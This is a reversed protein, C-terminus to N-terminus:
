KISNAISMHEQSVLCQCTWSVNCMGWAALSGLAVLTDEYCLEWGLISLAQHVSFGAGDVGRVRVCVEVIRPTALAM